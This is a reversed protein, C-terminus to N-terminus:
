TMVSKSYNAMDAVSNDMTAIHHAMQFYHIPEVHYAMKYQYIPEMHHAM